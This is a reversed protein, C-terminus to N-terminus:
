SRTIRFGINLNGEDFVNFNRFNTKFLDSDNVFWSGGRMTQVDTTVLDTNSDNSTILCGEWVNGSMDVVNFPSDGKGEYKTVPTTSGDGCPEVGNNCKQCDWDNGWPYLLNDDGQAARQWERETTLMIKEGTIESLWLCFAFVEYWSIGVVPYDPQNWKNDQWYRPETWNREEKTQWGAQSWWKKDSYGGAEIFKAFQANTTPYKAIAFAPVDFTQGGKPVYGGEVLTVKGAPIGIWEFPKPMLDLSTPRKPTTPAKPQQPAPTVVQILQAAIGDPDYGACPGDAYKQWMRQAMKLMTPSAALVKIQNYEDGCRREQRIEELREKAIEGLNGKDHEAVQELLSEALSYNHQAAADEAIQITEIPNIRPKPEAPHLANRQPYEGRALALEVYNLGQLAKILVREMPPNDTIDQYQVRNNKLEDPLKSTKLMLPLVPKNLAVAFRMEALCYISEVCKPTMVTIFCDCKAINECISRWWDSAPVIRDDLWVEHSTDERLARWFLHTWANDDHSYSIFLKM